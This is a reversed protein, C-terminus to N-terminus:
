YVRLINCMASDGTTHKILLIRPYSHVAFKDFMDEVLLEQVGYFESFLPMWTYAGWVQLSFFGGGFRGVLYLGGGGGVRPLPCPRPKYKSIARLYLTFCLLFPLNGELWLALGISRGFILGEFLAKIFILGV